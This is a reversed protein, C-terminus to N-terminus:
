KMWLPQLGSLSQGLGAIEVHHEVITQDVKSNEFVFPVLFVTHEISQCVIWDGIM